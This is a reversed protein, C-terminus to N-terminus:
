VCRFGVAAQPGDEQGGGREDGQCGAGSGGGGSARLDGGVGGAPGDLFQHDGGLPTLGVQLVGGDGDRGEAGLGQRVALHVGDAVQRALDRVERDAPDGDAVGGLGVGQAADALAIRDLLRHHRDIHVVDVDGALDARHHLEVVQLPHLHQAPGLAREIAAIGAGAGQPDDGAIRTVREAGLGLDPQAIESGGIDAGQHLPGQGGVPRAAEGVDM